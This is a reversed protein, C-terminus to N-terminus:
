ASQKHSTRYIENLEDKYKLYFRFPIPPGQIIAINYEEVTQLIEIEKLNVDDRMRVCKDFSEKAITRIDSYKKILLFFDGSILFAILIAASKSFISLVSEQNLHKVFIDSTYLLGVIMIISLCFIVKLRFNVRDVLQYTFFSSETVIDALRNPGANLKSSYYPSVFPAKDISGGMGWAYINALEHKPIEQGLGDAYLIIRRCKDAKNTTDAAMERLWTIVIPSAIAMFGVITFDAWVAILSLFLTGIAIYLSMWWLNEAKGYLNNRIDSLDKQQEM